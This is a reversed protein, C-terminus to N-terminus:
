GVGVDIQHGEFRAVTGVQRRIGRSSVLIGLTKAPTMTLMQDDMLLLAHM